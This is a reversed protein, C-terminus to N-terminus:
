KKIIFKATTQDYTHTTLNRNTIADMWQKDSILGISLAKRIADRPGAINGYGQFEEYDKIVRWALEHTYEYRQVLGEELLEVNDDQSPANYIQKLTEVAQRLKSLAQSFNDFRQKWRIDQKGM